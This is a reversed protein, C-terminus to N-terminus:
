HKFDNFKDIELSLRMLEGQLAKNTKLLENKSRFYRVLGTYAKIPALLTRSSLNKVGISFTPVFVFILIVAVIATFFVWTKSRFFTKFM